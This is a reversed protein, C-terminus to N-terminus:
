SDDQETTLNLEDDPGLGLDKKVLKVAEEYILKDEQKQAWKRRRNAM